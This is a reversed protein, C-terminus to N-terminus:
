IFRFLVKDLFKSVGIIVLVVFGFYVFMMLDSQQQHIAGLIETQKNIEQHITILIDDTPTITIIESDTSTDSLNNLLSDSTDFFEEEQVEFEEEQVEQLEDFM